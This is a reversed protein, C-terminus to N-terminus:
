LYQAMDPHAQLLQVLDKINQAREKSCLMIVDESVIVLTNDIGVTSILQSTQSFILNDNSDIEIYKCNRVVNKEGENLIDYIAKWNGIDSWGLDVPLVYLDKTKEIIAYDISISEFDNFIKNTIIPENETDLNNYIEMLGQYMKPMYKEYLKLMYDVRFFLMAPNWLYEWKDIYSQASKLDPKEKFSKVQYVDCGNYNDEVGGMEIYGYGTEPYTPKVGAMFISNPHSILFNSATEFIKKYEDENKIYHDSWVNTMIANLDKKLLKVCAYGIAAATDKKNPELLLNPNPIQTEIEKTINRNTSIYINNKDIIKFVRNYTKQLLTENDFFPKVQKPSNKRSIPWLRTGSGGAFIVAYINM